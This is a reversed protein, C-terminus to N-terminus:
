GLKLLEDTYPEDARDTETYFTLYQHKHKDARVVAIDCDSLPVLDGYRNKVVPTLTPDHKQLETILESLTM